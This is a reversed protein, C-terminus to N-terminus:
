GARLIEQSNENLANIEETNPQKVDFMTNPKRINRPLWVYGLSEHCPIQDHSSFLFRLLFNRFLLGFLLLGYALKKLSLM